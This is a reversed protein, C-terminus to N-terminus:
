HASAAGSGSPVGRSCGPDVEAVPVVKRLGRAIEFELIGAKAEMLRRKADDYPLTRRRARRAIDRRLRWRYVAAFQYFGDSRRPAGGSLWRAVTRMTVGFTAALEAQTRACGFPVSRECRNTMNRRREPPRSGRQKRRGALHQNQRTDRSNRAKRDRMTRRRGWAVTRWGAGLEYSMACGLVCGCLLGRGPRKASRHDSMTVSSGDAGDPSRPPHPGTRTAQAPM